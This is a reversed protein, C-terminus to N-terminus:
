ESLNNLRVAMGNRLQMVGSTILTDGYNLGHLVQVSAATRIGLTITRQHAVGNEYVYVINRGMEAVVSIGPVILADNFENVLIEVNASNGPKLLGRRNDYLARARLTFTQNDLRSEVAYIQAEFTNLLDNGATFNVRMGPRINNAQAENVSFELKLPATRTLTSIVTSTTVFAGESVFRLGVYGDFPARLETQEIRAKVLAIDARLKELETTITEYAEQSVADRELLQRQRSVRSELLPIQTELRRLEAQLIRDNMKALLEGRRVFSGERFYIRSIKGSTEFVLNIEEDPILIGKTRFVNDLNEYRLVRANVSLAQRVSSTQSIQVPEDSKSFQNKIRPFFAMGLILLVIAAILIIKTKKSM